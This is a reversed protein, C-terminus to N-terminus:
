DQESFKSKSYSSGVRSKKPPLPNFTLQLRAPDCALCNTIPGGSFRWWTSAQGGPGTGTLIDTDIHANSNQDDYIYRRISVKGTGSEKGTGIWRDSPLAARLEDILSTFLAVAKEETDVLSSYCSVYTAIRDLYCDMGAIPPNLRDKEPLNDSQSGRFPHMAEKGSSLALALSHLASNGQSTESSPHIDARRQGSAVDESREVLSSVVLCGVLVVLLIKGKMPNREDKKRQSMNKAHSFLFYTWCKRM